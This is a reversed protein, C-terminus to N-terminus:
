ACYAMRRANQSRIEGITEPSDKLASYTVPKWILCVDSTGTSPTTKCGALLVLLLLVGSVTWNRRGIGPM